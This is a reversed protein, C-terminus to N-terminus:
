KVHEELYRHAVTPDNTYVQIHGEPDIVLLTPVFRLMYGEKLQKAGETTTIYQRWSMNEEKLAQQWDANKKDVSISIVNVKDGLRKYMEKVSPIAARCPGCWSAWCDIFNYKGKVICDALQVNKGDSTQLTADRYQAERPYKKLDNVTKTFEALRAKDYNGAFTKLLGDLEEVSYAFPTDTKEQQLLLSVAYNPHATIFDANAKDLDARAVNLMSELSDVKATDIESRKKGSFLLEHRYAVNALDEALQLKYTTDFWEMYQRQAEGGRITMNPTKSLLGGKMSYTYPVSDISAAEVTYDANELMFPIGRTEPYEDKKYESDPKDSIEIRVRVPSKVSGKVVFTSGQTLASYEVRMGQEKGRLTVKTGDKIGKITGKVTFSQAFAGTALVMAVLAFSFKNFLSFKM